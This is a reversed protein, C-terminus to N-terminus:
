ISYLVYQVRVARLVAISSDVELRTTCFTFQSSYAITHINGTLLQPMGFRVLTSGVVLAADTMEEDNTGAGSHRPLEVVTSLIGVAYSRADVALLRQARANQQTPVNPDSEEDGAEYVQKPRRRFWGVLSSWVDGSSPQRQIAGQEGAAAEDGTCVHLDRVNSDLLEFAIPQYGRRLWLSQRAASPGIATAAAAEAGCTLTSSAPALNTVHTWSQYENMSRRPLLWVKGM